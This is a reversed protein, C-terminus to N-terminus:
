SPNAGELVLNEAFSVPAVFNYGRGPVTVIYCRGARAGGLIRRLASVQTKLNGDDVFVNPWVRAILEDKSVVEGAREVLATLIDFARSGIQVRNNGELLLRQSPLLRFPGFSYVQGAASGARGPLEPLFRPLGASAGGAALRDYAQIISQLRQRLEQDTLALAVACLYNHMEVGRSEIGFANVPAASVTLDSM